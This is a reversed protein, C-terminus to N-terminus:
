TDSQAHGRGGLYNWGSIGPGRLERGDHLVHCLCLRLGFRSGRVSDNSLIAQEMRAARAHVRLHDRLNVVKRGTLLTVDDLAAGAATAAFLDYLAHQVM